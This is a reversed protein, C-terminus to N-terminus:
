CRILPDTDVADKDEDEGDGGGRAAAVMMDASLPASSVPSRTWTTVSRSAGRSRVTDNADVVDIEWEAGAEAEVEAGGDVVVDAGGDPVTVGTDRV